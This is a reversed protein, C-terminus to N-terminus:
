RIWQVIAEMEPHYVLLKLGYKQIMYHGFPLEFFTQYAIIPVALFLTRGPEVHTLGEQYDIYQGLAEHFDTIVSSRLFSKIEVAIKEGEREAAIVREAGLDIRLEVGLFHIRLPDATINWGENELAQKVVNHYTDRTSM